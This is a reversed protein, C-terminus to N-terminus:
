NQTHESAHIKVRKAFNPNPSEEPTCGEAVGVLAISGPRYSLFELMMTDPRTRLNTGKQLAGLM